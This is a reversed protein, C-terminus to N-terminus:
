GSLIKSLSSFRKLFSKYLQDQKTTELSLKNKANSSYNKSFQNGESAWARQQASKERNEAKEWAKENASANNMEKYYPCDKKALEMADHKRESDTEWWEWLPDNIYSNIFDWYKGYAHEWQKHFKNIEDDFHKLGHYKVNKYFNELSQLYAYISSSKDFRDLLKQIFKAAEEPSSFNALANGFAEKLQLLHREKNSLVSKKEEELSDNQVMLVLLLACTVSLDKEGFPSPIPQKELATAPTARFCTTKDLTVNACM